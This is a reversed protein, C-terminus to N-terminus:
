AASNHLTGNNAQEYFGIIVDMAPLQPALTALRADLEAALTGASLALERVGGEVFYGTTVTEAFVVLQPQPQLTGSQAVLAAIRDLNASLSAKLPRFQPLALTLVIIFLLQVSSPLRSPQPPQYPARACM